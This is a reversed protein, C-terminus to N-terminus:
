ATCISLTSKGTRDVIRVWVCDDLVGDVAYFVKWVWAGDDYEYTTTPEGFHSLDVKSRKAQDNAIRIAQSATLRPAPTRQPTDSPAPEAFCCATLCVSLVLAVARKM